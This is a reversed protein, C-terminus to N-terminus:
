RSPQADLRESPRDAPDRDTPDSGALDSGTLDIVEASGSRGSAGPEVHRHLRALWAPSWWVRDGLLRMLAPVLTVRVIFADALVAVALGIGFLKIFTTGGAAFAGFTVALLVASATVIGGTRQLGRATATETDAGHDREERIRSLLFVEYDISLGFAVCFMLIPMTTDIAGTPTFGLLDAGNGDQFIWVMAGYTATLSLLNLAVAKIPLLVSGLLLFMLALTAVAIIAGVLPLRDAIAAKTDVLSAADGAVLLEPVADLDRIEAVLSQADASTPEVAPVVDWRTATASSWVDGPARADVRSGEVFVGAGSEVRAVHDLTSLRTALDAQVNAAVATPAVVSFAGSGANTFDARLVENAERAANGEPLVRYDPTSFRAGLFPAGLALLVAVALTTVGIPRRMVLRALRALRGTDPDGPATTRGFSFRDITTGVVALLAPLVVVAAVTAFAVTAVGAYAFSRLFYLPFVVLASLSLMTTAGSFAITRGATEVTRVVAGAVDGDGAGHLEERFRSVMFLSFDIGLGLGLATTLNISYISVDTVAGLVFLILLAGVISAMGIALPLAAAVLSRFVVVLLVLTIPVAILQAVALDSQVQEGIAAFVPGSGAWAVDLDGTNGQHDDRLEAIREDREDDTLTPDLVVVMVAATGDESRLSAPRGLDWYTSVDAVDPATELEAALRGAAAAVAPDDVDTGADVVLVAAADTVGLEAELLEAATASESDPDEFGGGRLVGAAGGGLAGAVVVLLASAALVTRRHRVSFGGLRTFM